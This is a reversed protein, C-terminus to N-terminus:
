QEGEQTSEERLALKSFYSERRLRIMRKEIADPDTMFPVIQESM